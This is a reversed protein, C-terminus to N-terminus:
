QVVPHQAKKKEYQFKIKQTRLSPAKVKRASLFAYFSTHTVPLLNDPLIQLKM